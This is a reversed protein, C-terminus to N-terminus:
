LGFRRKLSKAKQRLSPERSKRRGPEIYIKDGIKMLKDALQVIDKNSFRVCGGSAPKGLQAERNTGHLYIVRKRPNNNGTNKGKELGQMEILRTLVEAKRGSNPGYNLGTDRKGRFVSYADAKAGIINAVKMLGTSTKKSGPKNGFGKAGTSVPGTKDVSGGKVLYYKQESGIVILIKESATIKKAAILDKHVAKWGRSM